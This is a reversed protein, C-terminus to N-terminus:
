IKDELNMATSAVRINPVSYEYNLKLCASTHLNKLLVLLIKVLFYLTCSYHCSIRLKVRCKWGNWSEVMEVVM